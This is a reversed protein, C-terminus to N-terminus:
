NSKDSPNDPSSEKKDDLLPPDQEQPNKDKLGAKFQNFSAGLNRAVSPLRKGFILIAVIGVVIWQGDPMLGFAIMREM